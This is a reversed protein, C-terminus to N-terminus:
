TQCRSMGAPRAWCLTCSVVCRSVSGVAHTVLSGTASAIRSITSAGPLWHSTHRKSPSAKPKAESNSM